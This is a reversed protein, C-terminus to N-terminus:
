EEPEQKAEIKKKDEKIKSAVLTAVKTIEKKYDAIQKEKKALEVSQSEVRKQVDAVAEEIVRKIRKCAEGSDLKNQNDRVYGWIDWIRHELSAGTIARQATRIISERVEELGALIAKAENKYEQLEEKTSM